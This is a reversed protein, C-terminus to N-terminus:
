NFLPLFHHFYFWEMKPIYESLFITNKSIILHVFDCESYVFFHCKELGTVYMAVQIQTYYQHSTKLEVEDKDNIFLYHVYCIKKELDVILLKECTYPCKIELISKDAVSIRDPSAALYPQLIKIVLGITYIKLGTQLIFCNRAESEMKLGYEMAKTMRGQFKDNKFQKALSEFNNERTKIRHARTSSAIRKFRECHWQFCSSQGQSETIIKFWDDKTVQVTNYFQEFEEPCQIKRIKIKGKNDTKMSKYYYYAQEFQFKDLVECICLLEQKRKEEEQIQEIRLTKMSEETKLYNIFPCNVSYYEPPVNEVQESTFTEDLARIKQSLLKNITCGKKYKEHQAESPKNWLLPFDTKSATCEESVFICVAAAHKCGRKSNGAICTCITEAIQRDERM